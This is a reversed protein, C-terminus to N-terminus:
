APRATSRRVVLSPRALLRAPVSLGDVLGLLLHAGLEGVARHDIRVTTLPPNTFATYYTDGFGVISIEGPVDVGKESAVRLMQAALGDMAFAIATPRDKLAFLEEWFKLCDRHSEEANMVWNPDVKVMRPDLPLGRGLMALCYADHRERNLVSGLPGSVFAIRRHGMEFLHDMALGMGARSDVVVSPLDIGAHMNGVVVVKRDKAMAKLVTAEPPPRVLFGKVSRDALVRPLPDGEKMGLPFHDLILEAGRRALVEQAGRLMEETLVEVTRIPASPVLFGLRLVGRAGPAGAGRDGAGRRPRNVWFNHKQIVEMVRWRKEPSVLSPNNVVRSVTAVSVKAAKAVTHITCRKAM